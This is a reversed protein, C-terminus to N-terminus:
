PKPRCTSTKPQPPWSCRPRGAVIKSVESQSQRTRRAIVRQSVGQQQLLRYVACVDRDALAARAEPREYWPPAGDGSVM